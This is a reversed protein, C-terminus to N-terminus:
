YLVYTADKSFSQVWQDIEKPNVWVAGKIKFRSADIHKPIRVDLIVVSPDALKAKLDEISIFPINGSSSADTPDVNIAVGALLVSFFLVFATFRKMCCWRRIEPEFITPDAMLLLRLVAPM